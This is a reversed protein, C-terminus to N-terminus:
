GCSYGVGRRLRMILCEVATSRAERNIMELAGDLSSDGYLLYSDGGRTEYVVAPVMEVGYERFLRPDIDVSAHFAECQRGKCDPDKMLIRNVFRLTPGAKKMGKIFGRMVMSIGPERIVDLDRAYNRLAHVPVSSSVLIYIKGEDGLVSDGSSGDDAGERKEAVGGNYELVEDAGSFAGQRLNKKHKEIRGDLGGPLAKRVRELMAPDPKTPINKMYEDWLSLDVDPTEAFAPTITGSLLVASVVLLTIDRLFRLM